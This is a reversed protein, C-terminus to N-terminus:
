RRSTRRGLRLWLVLAVALAIFIVITWVLAPSFRSATATAQKTTPLGESLETAKAMAASAAQEAPIRRQTVDRVMSSIVRSGELKFLAPLLRDEPRAMFIPLVAGRHLMSIAYDHYPRWKKVLPLETYEPGRALTQFVPTLHIPVSSCFLLYNDKQYFFRLFKKALETDPSGKLIVWPEADLTAYATSGSPGVPHQFFAFHDPSRAEEPAEREIQLTGRGFFCPLSLARGLAYHTFNEKYPSNRLDQPVLDYLDRWYNLTEVVRPNTFDPKGSADFLTGGNSALLETFLLTIHLDNAPLLLPAANRNGNPQQKVFQLYASWTRPTNAGAEPPLYDKRYSYYSIGLATAIGYRKGDFLQLDRVAPFIDDRNLGDIVDDLPQLQGSHYLYAAMFPEIQTVDPVEGSQMAVTLKRYLDDWGVSVMQVQVGPNAAEFRRAIEDMAKITNPDNETHWVTFQKARAESIPFLVALVLILIIRRRM